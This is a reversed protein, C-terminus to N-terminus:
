PYMTHLPEGQWAQPRRQFISFANQYKKHPEFLSLEVFEDGLPSPPGSSTEGPGGDGGPQPAGALVHPPVHPRQRARMAELWRRTLANTLTSHM